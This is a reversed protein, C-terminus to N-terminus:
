PTSFLSPDSCAGGGPRLQIGPSPSIHCRGWISPLAPVTWTGERGGETASLFFVCWKNKLFSELWLVAHLDLHNTPEDLLLVDPEVFLARALAVRM